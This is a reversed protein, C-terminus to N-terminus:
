RRRLSIDAWIGAIAVDLKDQKPLFTTAAVAILVAVALAAVSNRRRRRVVRVRQHVAGARARLGADDVEHGVRRWRRALEQITSTHTM